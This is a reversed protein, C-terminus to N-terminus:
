GEDSKRTLEDEYLLGGPLFHGQRLHAAIERLM